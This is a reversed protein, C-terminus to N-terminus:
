RGGLVVAAIEVIVIKLVTMSPFIMAYAVDTRETPALKNAFSLIAPNGTAGSMVGAAQDFPLRFALMAVALTVAALVFAIVAGIALYTFGTAAVTEVFKQGSALGVQALFVTLGFNRLVLSASLPLTFTLGAVRRQQGLWLAFLLVGALGLTLAGVGPIPIPVLGILLGIAAGVGISVYSFEATGRISDGFFQAVEQRHEPPVLVGVRDGFELVLDERPLLDADGRRVHVIRHDFRFPMELSGLPVGVVNKKSAFVRVYELDSRDGHMRGRAGTGLTAAFSALAGPDTGALMVCDGGHLELKGHPVVNHGDRRVAVVDIGAPLRALLQAVSRAPLRSADIEVELIELRQGGVPTVQPKFLARALFLVLIPVAVGFPYAVSYGVTAEDSKLVAMVAQLTATSTGAGAFMGLAPGIGVSMVALSGLAVALAAVVGCLAALNARIGAASTLGRFFERGYALGVGYLFLLLGLTGLIAPPAAKPALAGIALGVFLVAGSGLALGRIGIEGVLYGIAITLFLTFLPQAELFPALATM